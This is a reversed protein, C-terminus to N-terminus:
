GASGAALQATKHRLSAILADPGGSMLLANFDSRQVAVRSITGDVLIDVAQWGAAGQQMVFDLRTGPKGPIGIETPVIQQAGLKRIQPLVRFVEGNWRDFNATWSAVTFATFAALLASKQAAPYGAYDLGISHALITPLDFTAVIATRLSAARKDFPESPGAKMAAILAGGFTELPVTAPDAAAQAAAPALLAALILTRRGIM